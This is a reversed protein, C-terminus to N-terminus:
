YTGNILTFNTEGLYKRPPLANGMCGLAASDPAQPPSADGAHVLGVTHGAEHCILEHMADYTGCRNGQAACYADENLELYFQDCLGAGADSVNECFGAGAFNAPLRHNDPRIIIDTEGNGAADYIPSSTVATNLDTDGIHSMVAHAPNVSWPLTAPDVYYSVGLNDQLCIQNTDCRTNGGRLNATPFIGDYCSPLASLTVITLLLRRVSDRCGVKAPGTNLEALSDTGHNGCLLPHYHMSRRKVPVRGAECM